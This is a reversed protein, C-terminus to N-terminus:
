KKFLVQANKLADVFTDIDQKDNYLYLSVRATAPVDLFTHLPM